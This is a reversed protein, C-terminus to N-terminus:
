WFGELCAVKLTVIFARLGKNSSMAAVAKQTEASSGMAREREAASCDVDVTSVGTAVGVDEDWSMGVM